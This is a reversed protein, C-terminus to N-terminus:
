KFSLTKLFQNFNLELDKRAQMSPNKERMVFLFVKGRYYATLECISAYNSNSYYALYVPVSGVKKKDFHYILTSADVQSYLREVTSKDFDHASVKLQQEQATQNFKQLIFVMSKGKVFSFETSQRTSSKETFGSPVTFSYFDTSKKEVKYSLFSASLILSALYIKM